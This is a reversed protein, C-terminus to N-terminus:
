KEHRPNNKKAKEIRALAKKAEKRIWAKPHSSFREIKSYAKQSKLKGLAIIAQGAVLDDELLDILVDQASSTKMNGLALALMVRAPGHQIDQVLDVIDAFVNDDAVVSLANAIAWKIGTNSENEMKHFEAVLTPAAMPKAWPVSLARVITEKVDLNEVRPLWRLLIPIADKYNLRKSYLDSVWEIQFGALALDELIPIEAQKNIAITRQRQQEKEELIRELNQRNHETQNDKLQRAIM